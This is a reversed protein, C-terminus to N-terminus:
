RIGEKIQFIYQRSCGHKVAIESLTLGKSLDDLIAQKKDSPPKQTFNMIRPHGIRNRELIKAVYPAGIGFKDGIEKLNKNKQFEEIITKDRIDAVKRSPLV